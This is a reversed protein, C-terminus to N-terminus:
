TTKLARLLHGRPVSCLGAEGVAGRVVTQTFCIYLGDGDVPLGTPANLNQVLLGNSISRNITDLCILVAQLDSSRRMNHVRGSLVHQFALMAESM